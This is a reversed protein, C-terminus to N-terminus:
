SIFISITILEIWMVGPEQYGGSSFYQVLKGLAFLPWMPEEDYKPFCASVITMSKRAVIVVCLVYSRKSKISADIWITTHPYEIWMLNQLPM